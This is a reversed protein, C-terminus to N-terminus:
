GEKQMINVWARGWGVERGGAFPWKGLLFWVGKFSSSLLPAPRIFFSRFSWEGGQRM